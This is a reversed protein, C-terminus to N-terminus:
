VLVILDCIFFLKWILMLIGLLVGLKVLEGLGGCFLLGFLVVVCDVGLVVMVMVCSMVMGGVVIMLVMVMVVLEFVDGVDVGMLIGFEM